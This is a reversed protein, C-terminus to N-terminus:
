GTVGHAAEGQIVRFNQDKTAVVAPNRVREDEIRLHTFNLTHLARQLFRLFEESSLWNPIVVFHENHPANVLIDM